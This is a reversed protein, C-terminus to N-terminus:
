TREDGSHLRFKAFQMSDSDSRDDQVEDEHDNKDDGVHQHAYPVHFDIGLSLIRGTLASSGQSHNIM